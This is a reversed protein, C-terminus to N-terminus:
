KVEANSETTSAAAPTTASTPADTHSAAPSMVRTVPVAPAAKPAPRAAQDTAVELIPVGNSKRLSLVKQWESTLVRTSTKRSFAYSFRGNSIRVSATDSGGAFEVGAASLQVNVFDSPPTM